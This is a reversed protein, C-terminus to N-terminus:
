EALRGYTGLIKLRDSHSKAEEVAKSVHEDSTSGEFDIYFCYDGLEKKSPRSEIRTLNIDNKFFAGLIHYLAGPKDNKLYSIVSTKLYLHGTEDKKFENESVYKFVPNSLCDSPSFSQFDPQFGSQSDQKKYILVFRTRNNKQSGIGSELVNLGYRKGADASAIAAAHFDKSALLAAKSTSETEIIRANKLRGRLFPRCQYIGQPHSYVATIEDMSDSLSLLCHDIRLIIETAICAEKENLLDMSIGVAGEISNELPIVAFDPGTKEWLSLVTSEIDSFYVMENDAEKELVKSFFFLAAKESYSGAPGLVSIKM